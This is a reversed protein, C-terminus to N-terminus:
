YMRFENYEADYNEFVYDVATVNSRSPGIKLDKIFSLILYQEGEVEIEVDGNYHNKAFGNLGYENAKKYCFYRYGVGQVYGKVIIKAKVM